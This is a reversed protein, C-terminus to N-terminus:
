PSVIAATRLLVLVAVLVGLAVFLANELDIEEPEIPREIRAEPESEELDELEYRWEEVDEENQRRNEDDSPAAM